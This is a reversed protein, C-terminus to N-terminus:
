DGDEQILNQNTITMGQSSIYLLILDRGKCVGVRMISVIYEESVNFDGVVSCTTM